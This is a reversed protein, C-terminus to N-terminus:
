RMLGAERFFRVAGPHYEIGEIAPAMEAPNWDAFERNAAALAAQNGHLAKVLRYVTDEPVGAGAVLTYEYGMMATPATVGAIGPEVTVIRAGPLRQALVAAAEPGTPLDIFTVGARSDAQQVVGSGPALLVGDVERSALLEAGRVFNPVPVRTLDDTTMGAMALAADLMVSVLRQATYDTPFPRGRLDQVSRIGSDRRVMIGTRFPTLAAVMRLQPLPRGEFNGTGRAAFVSEFTNSTGFEIEGRAVQPLYVNSGGQGVARADLGGAESAIKAVAAAVAFGQSGQPLTGIGVTQAAAGSGTAAALALAAAAAIITRKM